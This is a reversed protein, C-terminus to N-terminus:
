GPSNPDYADLPAAVLTDAGPAQFFPDTLPATSISQVTFTTATSIPSAPTSEGEVVGGYQNVPRGASSVLTRTVTIRALLPLGRHKDLADALPQQFPGAAAAAVQAALLTNEKAPFKVDDALWIEGSISWRPPTFTGGRRDGQGNGNQTEEGGYQDVTTATELLPFGGGPFGGSRRHGGRRMGVPRNQKYTVMGTVTYQHAALGALTMTRDTQHLDLKIDENAQGGPGPPLDTPQILTPVTMYYTKQVPDVGYLINGKGDYLLVPKGEVELRANTGKFFLRIARTVPPAQTTGTAQSASISLDARSMAAFSLSAAATLAAATGFLGGAFKKQRM